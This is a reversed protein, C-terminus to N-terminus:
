LRGETGSEIIELPIGNPDKIFFYNRGLRGTNIRIDAAFGKQVLARVAREISDVRLGFHKVGIVSLDAIHDHSHEPTKSHTCFFLELMMGNKDKLMIIKLAGDPAEYSNSETFDLARYFEVSRQADAVSISVHDISFVVAVEEL